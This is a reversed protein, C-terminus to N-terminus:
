LEELLEDMLLAVMEDDDVENQEAGNIIRSIVDKKNALIDWM